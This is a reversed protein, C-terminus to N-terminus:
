KVEEWMKKDGVASGVLAGNPGVFKMRKGRRTVIQGSTLTSDRDFGQDLNVEAPQNAANLLPNEDVISMINSEGSTPNGNADVPNGDADHTMTQTINNYTAGPVMNERFEIQDNLLSKPDNLQENYNAFTEPRNKEVWNAYSENRHMRGYVDTPSGGISHINQMKTNYAKEDKSSQVEGTVDNTNPNIWGAGGGLRSNKWAEGLKGLGGMVAGAAYKGPAWQGEGYGFKSKAKPNDTMWKDYAAQSRPGWNGDPNAGVKAQIGEIDDKSATKPDFNRVMKDPYSKNFSALTDVRDKEIRELPTVEPKQNNGATNQGTVTLPTNSKFKQQVTKSSNKLQSEEMRKYYDPESEKKLGSMGWRAFRNLPGYNYDGNPQMYDNRDGYSGDNKYATQVPTPAPEEKPTVPNNQGDINITLNPYMFQGQQNMNNGQMDYINTGTSDTRDFLNNYGQFIPNAM